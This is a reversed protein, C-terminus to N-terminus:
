TQSIERAAIRSMTDIHTRSDKIDKIDARIRIIEGKWFQAIGVLNTSGLPTSRVVAARGAGRNESKAAFLEAYLLLLLIDDDSPDPYYVRDDGVGTVTYEQLPEDTNYERISNALMDVLQEPQWQYAGAVNDGLRMRLEPELSMLTTV